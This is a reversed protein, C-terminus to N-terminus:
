ELKIAMNHAGVHVDCHVNGFPSMTSYFNRRHLRIYGDVVFM